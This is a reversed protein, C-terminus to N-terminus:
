SVGAVLPHALTNKIFSAIEPDTSMHHVKSVLPPRAPRDEPARMARRVRGLLEAKAAVNLSSKNAWEADLTAPCNDDLLSEEIETEVEQDTIYRKSSGKFKKLIDASSTAHERIWRVEHESAAEKADARLVFLDVHVTTARDFIAKNLTQTRSLSEPLFNFFLRNTAKGDSTVLTGPEHRTRALLGSPNTQPTTYFVSGKIALVQTYHLWRRTDWFPRLLKVRRHTSSATSVGMGMSNERTVLDDLDICTRQITEEMGLIMRKGIFRRM